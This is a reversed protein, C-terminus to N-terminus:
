NERKFLRLGPVLQPVRRRYEQYQGAFSEELLREESHVKSLVVFLGILFFLIWPSFGNMLMSGLLMGVTGSYMPHRTVAYPGQTRLQHDVKTEPVSSWMTGLSLRAWLTFGTSILLIAAGLVQLLHLNFQAAAWLYGPILRDFLFAAILGGVLYPVFPSRKQVAPAKWLNYLGGLAWVVFFGGWCAALIYWNLSHM